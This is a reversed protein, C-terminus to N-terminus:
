IPIIYAMVFNSQPILRPKELRQNVDNESADTESM